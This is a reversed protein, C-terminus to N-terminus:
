LSNWKVIEDIPKRVKEPVIVDEAPRGIPIIAIPEANDSPTFAERIVKPDFNCVWCTALGEEVAALCIHEIAIAADIDTHDKNDFSRHWAADHHGFVIIFSRATQIWDRNYSDFIAKIGPEQDVVLFTWPQRNVASPAIRAAELVRLITDHEVPKGNYKRCSFRESFISM